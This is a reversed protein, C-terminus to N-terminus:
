SRRRSAFPIVNDPVSRAALPLRIDLVRTRVRHGSVSLVFLERDDRSCGAVKGTLEHTVLETRLLHRLWATASGSTVKGIATLCCGKACPAWPSRGEPGSPGRLPARRWRLVADIQVFSLAPTIDLHGVYDIVGM